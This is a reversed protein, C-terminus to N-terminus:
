NSLSRERHMDQALRLLDNSVSSVKDTGLHSCVEDYQKQSYVAWGTGDTLTDLVVQRAAGKGTIKGGARALARKLAEEHATSRNGTLIAGHIHLKGTTPAIEFIFGFPPLHGFEKRLEKAIYRRLDDTPDARCSLMKHRKSSLNLTFATGGNQGAAEFSLIAKEYRWLDRWQKRYPDPIANVSAQLRHTRTSTKRRPFLRPSTTLSAYLLHTHPTDFHTHNSTHPNGVPCVEGRFGAFGQASLPQPRKGSFSKSGIKSIARAIRARNQPTSIGLYNSLARESTRARKLIPPTALRALFAM